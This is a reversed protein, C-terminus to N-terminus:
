WRSGGDGPRPSAFLCARWATLWAAFRAVAPLGVPQPWACPLLWALLFQCFAALIRLHKSWDPIAVESPPEGDSRSGYCESWEYRGHDSRGM